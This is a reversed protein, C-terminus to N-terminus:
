TARQETAGLVVGPDTQTYTFNNGSPAIYLDYHAASGNVMVTLAGTCDAAVTYTGTFTTGRAITGDNSSTLVGQVGGAGNYTEHGSFAFPTATGTSSVLSGTAAFLYTGQLTGLGCSVPGAQRVTPVAGASGVLSIAGATAAIFIVAATIAIRPSLHVPMRM